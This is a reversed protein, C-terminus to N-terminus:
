GGKGSVMYIATLVAYLKVRDELVDDTGVGGLVDRDIAGQAEEDVKGAEVGKVFMESGWGLM